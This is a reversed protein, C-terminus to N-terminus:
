PCAITQYKLYTLHVAFMFSSDTKGLALRQAVGAVGRGTAIIHFQHWITQCYVNITTM